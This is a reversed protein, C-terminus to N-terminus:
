SYRAPLEPSDGAAEGFHTSATVEDSETGGGARRGFHSAPFAQADRPLARFAAEAGCGDAIDHRDRAAGILRPIAPM